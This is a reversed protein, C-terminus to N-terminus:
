ATDSAGLPKGEQSGPYAAPEHQAQQWCCGWIGKQLSSELWEEGLKYKHRANNRGLHLIQCKLKNFKMGNIV